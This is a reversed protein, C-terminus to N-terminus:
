AAAASQQPQSSIEWEDLRDLALKRIAAANTTLNQRRRYEEVRLLDESSLDFYIGNRKKTRTSQEM